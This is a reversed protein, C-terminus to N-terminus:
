FTSKLVGFDTANVVNDNLADGALMLGMELNTVPGGGLSVQGGRALNRYGKAQYKYTGAPLTDVPVTIFGSADTALNAYQVLPDGGVLRLTLTLTQTSNRSNPQQIGQWTTHVVLVDGPADPHGTHGRDTPLTAAGRATGSTAPEGGAVSSTSAVSMLGLGAIVVCAAFWYRGSIRYGIILAMAGEKQVGRAYFRSLDMGRM